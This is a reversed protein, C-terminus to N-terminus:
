DSEQLMKYIPTTFQPIYDLKDWWLDDLIIYRECM